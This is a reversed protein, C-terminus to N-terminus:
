NKKDGSELIVLHSEKYVKEMKEMKEFQEKIIASYDFMGKEELEKILEATQKKTSNSRTIIFSLPFIDLILNEDVREGCLEKINAMLFSYDENSTIVRNYKLNLKYFSDFQFEVKSNLLRDGYEDCKKSLEEESLYQSLVASKCAFKILSKKESINVNHFVLYREILSELLSKLEEPSELPQREILGLTERANKCNSSLFHPLYSMLLSRIGKKHSSAKNLIRKLITSCIQIKIGEAEGVVAEEFDKYCKSPFVAEILTSTNKLIFELLIYNEEDWLVRPAFDLFDLYCNNMLLHKFLKYRLVESRLKELKDLLYNIDNDSFSGYYYGNESANLIVAKPMNKNVLENILEEKRDEIAMDFHYMPELDANLLLIDTTHKRLVPNSKNQQCMDTQILKFQKIKPRKEKQMMEYQVKNIGAKEFNYLFWDDVEFNKKDGSLQEDMFETFIHSSISENSYSKIMMRFAKIFYSTPMKFEKLVYYMKFKALCNNYTIGDVVDKNFYINSDYLPNTHMSLEIEFNKYKMEVLYLNLLENVEVMERQKDFIDSSKHSLISENLFNNHAGQGSRKSVSHKIDSEELVSNYTETSELDEVQVIKEIHVKKNSFASLSDDLTRSGILFLLALTGRIGEVIYKEEPSSYTIISGFYIRSFFLSVTLSSYILCNPSDELKKMILDNLILINGISEIKTNNDSVLVVLQQFPIKKDFISELYQVIELSFKIFFDLNYNKFGFVQLGISEDADDDDEDLQFHPIEIKKLQVLPRSSFVFSIDNFLWNNLDM